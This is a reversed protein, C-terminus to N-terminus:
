YTATCIMNQTSTYQGGPTIDTVDVIYSITYIINGSSQSGQVITDGSVFRFSNATNYNVAAAGGAGFQGLIPNSGFTIPLTNAVLNIGYQNVGVQPSGNSSMPTITYGSSNTPPTGFLQVIYGYSTYDSVEFQTTATATSTPSFTGFNPNGNLIGISLAPDNTTEHGAQIQVATPATSTGIGIIGGSEQAQYNTSQSQLLGTGGLSPEILQYHTSSSSAYAVLGGFLLATWLTAFVGYALKAQLRGLRSM